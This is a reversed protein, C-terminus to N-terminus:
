KWQQKNKWFIFPSVALNYLLWMWEGLPYFWAQKTHGAASSWKFANAWFAALRCLILFLVLKQILGASSVLVILALLWFAFASLAYLALGYKVLPAYYKGSSVHRTKQRWWQQWAAPAVSITHTAPHDAIITNAITALKSIILDDDGSATEAFTAIFGSDQELLAIVSQKHYLLNRGVGMYPRYLRAWSAYQMFTHRTEWRVFRNLLGAAKQYAGYGLVFNAALGNKDKLQQYAKVMGELWFESAPFCDADSLLVLDYRSQKLGQLLAHKKGPFLRQEAPAITIVNLQPYQQQLAKLLAASEDSSADNVFLLEWDNHLYQQALVLPLFRQINQAENKGCIVISVGPWEAPLYTEAAGPRYRYAYAFCLQVTFLILLFWFM